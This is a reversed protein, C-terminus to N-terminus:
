GMIGLSLFRRNTWFYWRGFRTLAYESHAVIWWLGSQRTQLHTKAGLKGYRFRLATWPLFSFVVVLRQTWAEGYSPGWPHCDLQFSFIPFKDQSHDHLLYDCRQKSRQIIQPLKWLSNISIINPVSVGTCDKNSSCFHPEANLSTIQTLSMTQDWTSPNVLLFLSHFRNKNLMMATSSLM